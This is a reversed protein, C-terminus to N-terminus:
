HRSKGLGSKPDAELIQVIEQIAAFASQGAEKPMATAKEPAPNVKSPNHQHSHQQAVGVTAFMCFALALPFRMKSVKVYLKAQVKFYRM